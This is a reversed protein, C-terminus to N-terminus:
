HVQQLLFEAGAERWRNQLTHGKSDDVVLFKLKSESLQLESEHELLRLAFRVCCDTGVREDRNGIAAYVARGALPQCFHELALQAVDERERCIAFERLPRWDTVPALAAVGAIRLDAAALRLGCYGARSVGCVVIRGAVALERRILEDVVASGDAAFLKFPDDGALFRACLGDIGAGRSDIREGHAPLDFSAVRHGAALFKRAPGAYDEATLSTQRDTSFTLLLWPREVQKEAPPSMLRVRLTEGPRVVEFEESQGVASDQGLLAIPGLTSVIALFTCARLLICLRM